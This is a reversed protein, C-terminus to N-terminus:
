RNLLQTVRVALVEVFWPDSDGLYLEMSRCNQYRPSWWSKALPDCDETVPYPITDAQM